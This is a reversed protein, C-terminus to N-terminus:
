KLIEIFTDLVTRARSIESNYVKTSSTYSNSNGNNIMNNLILQGNDNTITVKNLGIKFNENSKYEM